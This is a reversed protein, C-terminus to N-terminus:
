ECTKHILQMANACGDPDVQCKIADLSPNVEFSLTRDFFLIKKTIETPGNYYKHLISLCSQFLHHQRYCRRKSLLICEGLAPGGPEHSQRSIHRSTAIAHPHFLGQDLHIAHVHQYYSSLNPIDSHIRSPTSHHLDFLLTCPNKSMKVALCPKL